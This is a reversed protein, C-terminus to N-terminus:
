TQSIDPYVQVNTGMTLQLRAVRQLDGLCDSFSAFNLAAGAEDGCQKVGGVHQTDRYTQAHVPNGFALSEEPAHPM